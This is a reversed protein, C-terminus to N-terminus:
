RSRTRSAPGTEEPVVPTPAAPIGCLNGGCIAFAGTDPAVMEADKAIVIM